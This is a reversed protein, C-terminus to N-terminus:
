TEKKNNKKKKPYQSGGSRVTSVGEKGGRREASRTGETAPSGAQAAGASRLRHRPATADGDMGGSSFRSGSWSREVVRATRLRRSRVRSTSGSSIVSHRSIAACAGVPELAWPQCKM